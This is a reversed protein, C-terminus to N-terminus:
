PIPPWEQGLAFVACSGCFILYFIKKLIHIKQQKVYLHLLFMYFLSWNSRHGGGQGSQSVGRGYGGMGQGGGGGGGGLGPRPQPRTTSIQNGAGGIPGVNCDVGSYGHCCKWEMDTVMKYAVKYRPRM